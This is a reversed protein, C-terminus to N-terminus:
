RRPIARRHGKRVVLALARAVDYTAAVAFTQLLVQFSRTKLRRMMAVSRLAPPSVLLGLLVTCPWLNGSAAVFIGAPLSALSALVGIPIVLSPLERLEM